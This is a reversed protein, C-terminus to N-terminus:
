AIQCRAHPGCGDQNEGDGHPDGGRGGCRLGAAVIRPATIRQLEEERDTFRQLQGSCLCSTDPLNLAVQFFPVAREHLSQHLDPPLDLLLLSRRPDRATPAAGRRGMELDRPRRHALDVDVIPPRHLLDASKEGRVLLGAGSLQELQFGEVSRTLSSSASSRRPGTINCVELGNWSARGGAEPMWSSCRGEKWGAPFGAPTSGRYKLREAAPAARVRPSRTPLPLWALSPPPPP